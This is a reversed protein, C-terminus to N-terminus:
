LVETEEQKILWTMNPRVGTVDVIGLAKLIALIYNLPSEKMYPNADRAVNAIASSREYVEDIKIDCPLEQYHNHAVLYDIVDIFAQKTVKINNQPRIKITLDDLDVLWFEKTIDDVIWFSQGIQLQPWLSLFKERYQSM